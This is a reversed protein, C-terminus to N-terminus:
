NGNNNNNNNNDNGNNNNDPKPTPTPTPTPTGMVVTFYAPHGAGPKGIDVTCSPGGPKSFAVTVLTNRNVISQRGPITVNFIALGDASTQSTYTDNYSDAWLVTAQANAGGVGEPNGNNNHVFKAYVAIMPTGFTPTTNTTWAGCFYAPLAPTPSANTGLHVTVTVQPGNLDTPKNADASAGCAAVLVSLLFLLFIAGGTSYLSCRSRTKRQDQERIQM